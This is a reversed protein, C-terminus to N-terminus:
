RGGKVQVARFSGGTVRVQTGDAENEAKFTFSGEVTDDSSSTIKLTGADAEQTTFKTRNMFSGDEIKSFSARFSDASLPAGITYTGEPPPANDDVQRSLEIAFNRNDTIAVSFHGMELSADTYTAYGDFDGDIAGTVTMSGLGGDSAADTNTNTNTDNDGCGVSAAAIIAPISTTVMKTIDLRCAKM